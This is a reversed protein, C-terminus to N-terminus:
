FVNELPDNQGLAKALLKAAPDTLEFGDVEDLAWELYTPDDDIIEGITAKSYGGFGLIDHIGLPTQDSM